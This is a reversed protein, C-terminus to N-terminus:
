KSVSGDKLGNEDILGGNSNNNLNDSNGGDNKNGNGSTSGLSNENGSTGM